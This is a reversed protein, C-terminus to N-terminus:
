ASAYVHEYVQAPPLNTWVREKGLYHADHHREKEALIKQLNEKAEGSYIMLSLKPLFLYEFYSMKGGPKIISVFKDFVRQVFDAQFANLPLGSVIYDYKEKPEYETISVHIVKVNLLKKYKERLQDCFKADYEVLHLEDKKGMRKIIKDSFVGTGAGVELILRRPMKDDFSGKAIQRSIAKALQSSSPVVSGVKAPEKLFGRFFLAINKIKQTFSPSRVYIGNECQVIKGYVTRERFLRSLKLKRCSDRHSNVWSTLSKSDVKVGTRVYHFLRLVRSALWGKADNKERPFFRVLEDPSKIQFDALLSNM